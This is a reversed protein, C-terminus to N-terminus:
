DCADQYEGLYAEIVQMDNIVDCPTGEFIKQGANLVMVKNSIGLVAKMVHEVVIVITRQRGQGRGPSAQLAKVLDRCCSKVDRRNNRSPGPGIPGARRRKRTLIPSTKVSSPRRGSHSIM